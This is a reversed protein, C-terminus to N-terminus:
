FTETEILSQSVPQSASQSVSQSAPQSVSQSVPQSVLSSVGHLLTKGEFGVPGWSTLFNGANQPVRFNMVANV